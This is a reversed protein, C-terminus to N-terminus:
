LAELIFAKALAPTSVTLNDFLPPAGRRRFSGGVVVLGYVLDCEGLGFFEM